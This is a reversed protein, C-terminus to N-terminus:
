GVRADYAAGFNGGEKHMLQIIEQKITHLVVMHVDEAVEMDMIQAHIVLDCIDKIKGGRFGCMAVTKVGRDAAYQMAKVVNTSNGSGSLGIVLDDKDLFNKLPEVFVDDYSLDNAIATFGTYNDNTCIWKFRKELGHSVGKIYDGAMHSATAGSGGNGFIFVTGRKEYTNLIEDRVADIDAPSIEMLAKHLNEFYITHRSKNSDM